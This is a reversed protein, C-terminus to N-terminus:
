KALKWIGSEQGGVVLGRTILGRFCMPDIHESSDGQVAKCHGPFKWSLTYGREALSIVRQMPDSLKPAKKERPAKPEKPPKPAAKLKPAAPATKSKETETKAMDTDEQTTPEGSRIRAYEILQELAVSSCVEAGEHKLSLARAVDKQKSKYICTGGRSVVAFTYPTGSSTQLLNDRIETLRVPDVHWNRTPTEPDTHIPPM